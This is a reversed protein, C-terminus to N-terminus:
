SATEKTQPPVCVQIAAPEIAVRLRKAGPRDGGDLEYPVKSDFRVDLETATTTQVLPSREARGVVVRSLVRAWQLMGDATVVAVDLRGDDPRADPFATLGGSLTGVNGVLICSAEGKFWKTGDVRVRVPWAPQRAARTGSWVYALQGVRRKWRSDADGTM